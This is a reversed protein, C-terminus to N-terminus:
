KSTWVTKWHSSGNLWLVHTVALCCVSLVMYCLCGVQMNGHDLLYIARVFKSLSQSVAFVKCFRDFRREMQYLWCFLLQCQILLCEVLFMSKVKLIDKQRLWFTLWAVADWGYNLWPAQGQESVNCSHRIFCICFLDWCSGGCSVPRSWQSTRTNCPHFGNLLIQFGAVETHVVCNVHSLVTWEPSQHRREASRVRLPAQWFHNHHHHSLYLM